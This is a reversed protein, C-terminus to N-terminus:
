GMWEYSKKSTHAKVLAKGTCQLGFPVFVIAVIIILTDIFILYKPLYARHLVIHFLCPFIFQLCTGTVIGIFSLFLGFHPVLDALLLTVLFLIVRICNMFVKYEKMLKSEDKGRLWKIHQETIDFVSYMPLCYSSLALVIVAGNVLIRASKNSLNTSVVEKTEDGFTIYGVIGIVIKLFTMATYAWNMASKIAQPEKMRKEIVSLYMQSSYSAMIVGIALSYRRSKLKNMVQIDWNGACIFCYCVIVSFVFVIIGTTVKSAVSVMKFQRVIVTPLSLMGFAIIWWAVSSGVVFEKLISSVVIPYLTAMFLLETIMLVTILIRGGKPWVAEAIEAYSERVRKKTSSKDDNEVFNYNCEILIQGTYNSAAAILCIFVVGYWGGAKMIYPMALIAVGQISNCVNWFASAKTIKESNQGNMEVAEGLNDHQNENGDSDNIPLVHIVKVQNSVTKNTTCSTRREM